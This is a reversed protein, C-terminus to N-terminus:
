KKRGSPRWEGKLVAEVAERSWLTSNCVLPPPFKGQRRWLRITADKVGFLRAVAHINLVRDTAGPV